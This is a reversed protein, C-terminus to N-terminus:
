NEVPIIDSQHLISLKELENIFPKLPNVSIFNPPLPNHNLEPINTKFSGLIKVQTINGNLDRGLPFYNNLIGQNLRLICYPNKSFDGFRLQLPSLYLDNNRPSKIRKDFYTPNIQKFGKIDSGTLFEIFEQNNIKLPFNNMSSIPTSSSLNKLVQLLNTAYDRIDQYSIAPPQFPQTEIM